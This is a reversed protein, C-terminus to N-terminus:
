AQPLIVVKGANGQKATEFAEITKDFPLKHTIVKDFPLMGNELIRIVDNGSRGVLFSGYLTLEKAVLAYTNVPVDRSSIGIQLIRGGFGMVGIAQALQSAVAEVAINVGEGKTREAVLASLDTELPNVAIDAGIELALARRYANPESLIILSCGAKKLMAIAFLGVPGGGFVVATEGVQPKIKQLGNVTVGVPEFAAAQEMPVHEAIPFAFYAPIRIYKALGGDWFIGPTYTYGEQEPNDFVTLCGSFYGDRCRKCRGCGQDQDVAVKQGLALGNVNRGKEVVRGSFEHGMIIDTKAPHRPPVALFHLDTGCVGVAGVELIIDDESLLQPVPREEFAIRGQGKFVAAKMLGQKM